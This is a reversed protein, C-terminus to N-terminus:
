GERSFRVAFALLEGSTVGLGSHARAAGTLAQVLTELPRRRHELIQELVGTDGFPRGAASTASRVPENVIVIADGSLLRVETEDYRVAGAHEGPEPGGELLRQGPEGEGLLCFPAPFGAACSRVHGGPGITGAWLRARTGPQHVLLAGHIETALAAPALPRACASHFYGRLWEGVGLAQPLSGLPEALLVVLTGDAQVHRECLTPLPVLGALRSIAVERARPSTVPEEPRRRAIETWLARAHGQDALRELLATIAPTVLNIAGLDARTFAAAEGMRALNLVGAMRGAAPLPVCMSSAIRDRPASADFREDRVEGELLMGRGERVVWDSIRRPSPPLDEGIMGAPLALGAVIHLRASRPNVLMISGRTAGVSTALLGLLEYAAARPDIADEIRRSWRAVADVVAPSAHRLASPSDNSSPREPM